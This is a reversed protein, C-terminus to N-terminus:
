IFMFRNDNNQTDSHTQIFEAIARRMFDSENIQYKECIITMSDRLVEPMRYIESEGGKHTPSIEKAYRQLLDKLKLNKINTEPLSSSLLKNELDKSWRVADSKKSFTKTFSRWGSIRVQANWSKGRKRVSSM